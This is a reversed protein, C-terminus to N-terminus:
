ARAPGFPRCSTAAHDCRAAMGIADIGMMVRGRVALEASGVAAPDLREGDAPGLEGIVAIGTRGCVKGGQQALKCRHQPGLGEPRQRCARDADFQDGCSRRSVEIVSGPGVDLVDDYGAEPEQAPVRRFREPQLAGVPLAAEGGGNVLHDGSHDASEVVPVPVVAVLEAPDHHRARRGGVIPADVRYVLLGRHADGDHREVSVDEVEVRREALHEAEVPGKVLGPRHGVEHVGVVHHGDDLAQLAECAALGLDYTHLHPEDAGVRPHQPHM